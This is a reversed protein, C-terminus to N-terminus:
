RVMALLEVNRIPKGVTGVRNDELVGATIVPSTETLGYGQVIPLGAGIYVYGLEEPLAAGGSVLLRIRGGLALRMKSFILKDALKRKLELSAPIQQHRTSLRAHKKGVAVAWNLFAANLRGKEATKEKVRAFIKEFIRPVGVFITPKVERLNPGITDLSEGFYVAMGHYLYMYMALRELVHSLPLVSLASDDRAFSLHGSSDILNSVLNSHTLMVGKPEGTTGSTYIITALEDPKILRAAKGILGPQTEEVTQGRAELEALSLARAVEGSPKELLILHEIAPCDALIERVQLFKEENQVVLVRAGSDKLIYRVQPPTLTPYIPVDIATAFLCGADTLTWEARSESLIAVRDGRRVGLSYLGAAIHRARRLMEDSSIAIWRGDRKYNLTDPRPHVRAVYEFVGVLTTPESTNLPIRKGTEVESDVESGVAATSTETIQNV